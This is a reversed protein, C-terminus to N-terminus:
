NRSLIHELVNAIQVSEPRERHLLYAILQPDPLALLSQFAQKETDDATDFRNELYGLLLEDLERM